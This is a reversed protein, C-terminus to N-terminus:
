NKLINGPPRRCNFFALHLQLHKGIAMYRAAWHEKCNGYAVLLTKLRLLDRLPYWRYERSNKLMARIKADPLAFEQTEINFAVELDGERHLSRYFSTLRQQGDVLYHRAPRTADLSRFIFPRCPIRENEKPTWILFIGFPYDHYVSSLLRPTKHSGWVSPRQLEPLALENNEVWSFIEALSRETMGSSLEAM